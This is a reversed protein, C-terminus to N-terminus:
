FLLVKEISVVADRKGFIIAALSWDIVEALPLFHPRAKDYIGNLYIIPITGRAISEMLIQMNLDQFHVFLFMTDLLCTTHYRPFVNIKDKGEILCSIDDLDGIQFGTIEQFFLAQGGASCFKHRRRLPFLNM